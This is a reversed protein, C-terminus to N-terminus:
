SPIDSAAVNSVHAVVVPRPSRVTTGVQAAPMGSPHLTRSRSATLQAVDADIRRLTDITAADTSSAAEAKAHVQQMRQIVNAGLESISSGIFQAIESSAGQLRGMMDPGFSDIAVRLANFCQHSSQTLVVNCNPCTQSAHICAQEHTRRDIESSFVFMCGRASNVCPTSQRDFRPRKFVEMVLIAYPM